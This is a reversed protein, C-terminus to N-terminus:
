KRGANAAAVMSQRLSDNKRMVEAHAKQRTMGRKKMEEAVLKEYTAEVDTGDESSGKGEPVKESGSAGPKAKEEELAKSMAANRDGLEKMWASAVASATAGQAQQSAIFQADAPKQHDIGACASVIESFSAAVPKLPAASAAITEKATAAPAQTSESMTQREKRHNKLARLTDDFSEVADVLGLSKAADGVHVRGDALNRVKELSLSRGEAVAKLFHENLDNVITQYNKLHEDTVATGPTGAGKFEGARVVHVKVGEKAAMESLDHVVMFTGISGVLGTQNTSIRSAQSGIWYAASAGLDEIYAWVTKVKAAAKVEDALEKTGAVTGGPSEIKLLISTISSDSAAARIVKRAAVTSTGSSFSTEQKMLTGRIAIIAVSGESSDKGSGRSDGHGARSIIKKELDAMTPSESQRIHVALDMGEIWKCSQRFSDEHAAWVGFYDELRPTGLASFDLDIESLLSLEDPM